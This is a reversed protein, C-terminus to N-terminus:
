LFLFPCQLGGKQSVVSLENAIEHDIATTVCDVWLMSRLNDSVPLILNILRVQGDRGAGSM